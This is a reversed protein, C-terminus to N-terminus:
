PESIMTCGTVKVLDKYAARDGDNWVANVTDDTVGSIDNGEGWNITAGATSTVLVAAKKDSFFATGSVNLTVHEPEETGGEYFPTKFYEDAIKIARNGNTVSSKGNITCNEVTVTQGNAEIWLMYAESTGGVDTITSNKITAKKGGVAIANNATVNDLVVNCHFYIDHGNWTGGDANHGSNTISANKITLVANDNKTYIANWDSDTNNFTITYGNGDVVISETNDTGFVSKDNEPRAWPAIDITINDQLIVLVDGDQQTAKLFNEGDSVFATTVSDTTAPTQVSSGNITGSVVPSKMSTITISSDSITVNCDASESEAIVYTYTDGRFSLVLPDSPATSVTYYKYSTGTADAASASRTVATNSFEYLLTGSQATWVEGESDTFSKGKANVELINDKLTAEDKAENLLSAFNLGSSIKEMASSASIVTNESGNGGGPIPVFIYRPQCATIVLLMVAISIIAILTKKM